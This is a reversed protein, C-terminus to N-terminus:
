GWQHFARDKLSVMKEHFRQCDKKQVWDPADGEGFVHLEAIFLRGKGDKPRIRVTETGADLAIYENLFSGGSVAVTRWAGADDTIQVELAAIDEYFQVYLGGVSEEAEIEVYAYSGSSSAWYTQYQGDTMRGLTKKGVASLTCTDTIEQATQALAAPAFMMLAAALAWFLRKM